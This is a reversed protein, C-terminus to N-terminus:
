VLQLEIDVPIGLAWGLTSAVTAGVRLGTFSGPGKNITIKKIDKTSKNNETLKKDIFELLYQTKNKRSPAVVKQDNLNIKINNPDSTDIHLHM